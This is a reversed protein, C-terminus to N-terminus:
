IYFNWTINLIVTSYLCTFQNTIKVNLLTVNVKTSLCTSTDGVHHNLLSPWANRCPFCAQKALSMHPIKLMLTWTNTICQLTNCILCCLICLVICCLYKQTSIVPLPNEAESGSINKRNKNKASLSFQNFTFIQISKWQSQKHRQAPCRFIIQFSIFFINKYSNGPPFSPNSSPSSCTQM